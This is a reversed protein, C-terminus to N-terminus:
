GGTWDAFNRLLHMGFKHSKEPHFQVGMINDKVVASAFDFGYRTEALVNRREACIVHYSHVFYFRNEAELEAFLPHPQCVALTNWGMHPIKLHANAGDFKFRVTEADLWGLGPLQGEESRKCLLQMGLCVGLIPIKQELVRFNLLPILGRTALNKMGVDFAGVGPFVLKDAKQIVEPDSTLIAAVGVKKFMNVVSGLNGMGYDIIVIM